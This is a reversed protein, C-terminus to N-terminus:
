RFKEPYLQKATALADHADEIAGQVDDETIPLEGFLVHAGQPLGDPGFLQDLLESTIAQPQRQELVFRSFVEEERVALGSM